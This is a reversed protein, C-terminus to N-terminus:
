RCTTDTSLAQYRLFSIADAAVVFLSVALPRDVPFFITREARYIAVRGEFTFSSEHFNSAATRLLSGERRGPHVVDFISTRPFFTATSDADILFAKVGEANRLPGSIRSQISYKSFEQRTASYLSSGLRSVGRSYQSRCTVSTVGRSNLKTESSQKNQAGEGSGSRDIGFNAETHM